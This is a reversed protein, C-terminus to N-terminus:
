TISNALGSRKSSRIRLTLITGYLRANPSVGHGLFSIFFESFENSLELTKSIGLPSVGGDFVDLFHQSVGRAGLPDRFNYPHQRTPGLRM